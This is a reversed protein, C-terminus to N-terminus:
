CASGESRPVLQVRERRPSVPHPQGGEGLSNCFEVMPQALHQKLLCLSRESKGALTAALKRAHAEIEGAPVVLCSWRQAKGMVPGPGFLLQQARLEGFRQGFLREEAASPFLPAAASTFGYRAERGCLMVDCVATLMLGAGTADGQM